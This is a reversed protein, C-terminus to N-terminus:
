YNYDCMRCKTCTCPLGVNKGRWSCLGLHYLRHSHLPKCGLPGYAPDLLNFEYAPQTNAKHCDVHGHISQADAPVDEGANCM